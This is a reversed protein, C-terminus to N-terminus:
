RDRGQVALSLGCAMLLLGLLGVMLGGRDASFLVQFGVCLVLVGVLRM